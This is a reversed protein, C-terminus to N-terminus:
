VPKNVPQSARQDAEWKDLKLAQVFGVVFLFVSGTFAVVAFAPFSSDNHQIRLYLAIIGGILLLGSPLGNLLFILRFMKKATETIPDM